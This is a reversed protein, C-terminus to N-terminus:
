VVKSTSQEVTVTNQEIDKDNDMSQENDKDNNMSQVVNSKIHEVNGSQEMNGTGQKINVNSEEVNREKDTSSQDIDSVSDVSFSDSIDDDGGYFGAPSVEEEMATGVDASDLLVPSSVSTPSDNSVNNSDAPPTPQAVKCSTAVSSTDVPRYILPIPM